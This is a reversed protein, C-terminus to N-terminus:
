GAPSNNAQTAADRKERRNSCAMAAERRKADPVRRGDADKVPIPCTFIDLMTNNVFGVKFTDFPGQTNGCTM